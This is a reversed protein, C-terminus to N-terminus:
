RCRSRMEAAHVLCIMIGKGLGIEQNVDVRTFNFHSVWSIPGSRFAVNQRAKFAVDSSDCGPVLAEMLFVVVVLTKVLAAYKMMSLAKNDTHRQSKSKLLMYTPLLVPRSYLHLPHCYM